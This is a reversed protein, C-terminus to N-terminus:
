LRYPRIATTNLGTADAMYLYAAQVEVVPMPQDGKVLQEAARDIAGAHVGAFDDLLGQAPIGRGYDKRVIVGGPDGFGALGIFQDRPPEALCQRQDVDPHEIM